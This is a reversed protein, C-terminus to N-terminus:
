DANFLLKAACEKWVCSEVILCICARRVSTLRPMCFFLRSVAVATHCVSSLSVLSGSWAFKIEVRRPFIFDRRPKILLCPCLRAWERVWMVFVYCRERTCWIRKLRLITLMKALGNFTNAIPVQAFMIYIFILMLRERVCCPSQYLSLSGTWNTHM